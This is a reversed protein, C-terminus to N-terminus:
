FLAKILPNNLAKLFKAGANPKEILDAIKTLVAIDAHNGIKELLPTKLKAVQEFDAEIKINITFNAM